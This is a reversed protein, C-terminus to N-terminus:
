FETCNFKYYLYMFTNSSLFVCFGFIHMKFKKRSMKKCVKFLLLCLFTLFYLVICYLLQQTNSLINVTAELAPRFSSTHTSGPNHKMETLANYPILNGRKLPYHCWGRWSKLLVFDQQAACSTFNFVDRCTGSAVQIRLMTATVVEFRSHVIHTQLIGEQGNTVQVWRIIIWAGLRKESTSRM